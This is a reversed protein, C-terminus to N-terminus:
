RQSILVPKVADKSAIPGFQWEPPVLFGTKSPVGMERIGEEGTVFYVLRYVVRRDHM